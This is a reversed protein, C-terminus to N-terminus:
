KVNRFSMYYICEVDVQYGTTLFDIAWKVGYHQTATYACDIWQGFGAASNLGAGIDVRVNPVFAFSTARRPDLVAMKCNSFERVDNVATPISSDDRDIAWYLRPYASTTVTSTGPDTRLHFSMVVKNIRFEDFLQQFDTANIVSGLTFTQSGYVPASSGAYGPNATSRRKFHHIGLNLIPRKKTEYRRKKATKGMMDNLQQNRRKMAM